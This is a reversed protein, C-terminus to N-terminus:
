VDFRMPNARLASRWRLLTWALARESASFEGLASFALTIALGIMSLKLVLLFGTVPWLSALIYALGCILVSRGLTAAPPLIKWVRYVTLTSALAGLGAFLTAVFAAGVAGWKPILFLYGIMALPLLPGALAITWGPKGASTLIATNASIMVMSLAGFILLSLLPAGSSFSAGFIAGVIEAAAGATMGAFPLLCLVLRMANRGMRKAAQDDGARLLHTLTSLLLPAFSLAFLAPAITLNQAAGYVGAQAATGGLAKLALLDLRDYLRISLAFLFLPAAYGVLKRASFESRSFISPRVYFRVISLEVLSAGISGLIAGHVSLGLGVLLVILVLRAIWRSASALAQQRFSGLGILINRHARALSFLPIDFAFFWLYTALMPEHFLSAIPVALFCLLVAMIVSLLLYLKLVADGVPRWDHAEGVFKITTRALVSTITWEVWTVLTAALTFLGYDAPGLRRTLFAATIIGTPLLLAEALFVRVTGDLMRQEHSSSPPNPLRDDDKYSLTMRRITEAM